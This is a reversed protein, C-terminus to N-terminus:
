ELEATVSVVGEDNGIILRVQVPNTTGTLDAGKGKAQVKFRKDAHPTIMVELNVEDIQGEFKLVGKKDRIFSNPPVM